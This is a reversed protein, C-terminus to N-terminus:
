IYGKKNAFLTALKTFGGIKQQFSADAQREQSILQNLTSLGQQYQGAARQQAQFFPAQQAKAILSAGLPSTGLGRAAVSGAFLNVKGENERLITEIEADSFVGSARLKNQANIQQQQKIAKEGTSEHFFDFGTAVVSEVAGALLLLSTPDM